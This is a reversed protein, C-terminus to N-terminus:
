SAIAVTAALRLMRETRALLQHSPYRAENAKEILMEVYEILQESTWISSEIRDLLQHSPYREDRVRELLLELYREQLPPM